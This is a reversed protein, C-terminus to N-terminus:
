CLLVNCLPCLRVYQAHSLRQWFSFFICSAIYCLPSWPAPYSFLYVYLCACMCMLVFECM